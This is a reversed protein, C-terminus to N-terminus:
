NVAGGTILELAGRVDFGTTLVVRVAAVGLRRRVEDLLFVDDHRVAAIIAKQCELRLPVVSHKECFELTLRQMLK